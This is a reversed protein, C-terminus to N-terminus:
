KRTGESVQKQQITIDSEDNRIFVTKMPACQKLAREIKISFITFVREACDQNYLNGWANDNELEQFM